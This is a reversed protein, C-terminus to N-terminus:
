IGPQEAASWQDLPRDQPEELTLVGSCWGLVYAFNTTTPQAILLPLIPSLHTLNMCAGLSVCAHFVCNLM